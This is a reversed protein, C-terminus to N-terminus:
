GAVAADSNAVQVRDGDAVGADYQASTTRHPETSLYCRIVERFVGSLTLLSQQYRDLLEDRALRPFPLTILIVAICFAIVLTLLIQLPLVVQDQDLAIIVLILANIGLAFRRALPPHFYYAIGISTIFLVIEVVIIRNVQSLSSIQAGTVVMEVVVAALVGKFMIDMGALTGGVTPRITTVCFVLMLYPVNMLPVAFWQAAIIAGAIFSILGRLANDLNRTFTHRIPRTSLLAPLWSHLFAAALTTPQEHKHTSSLPSINDKANGNAAALAVSATRSAPHPRLSSDTTSQERSFATSLKPPLLIRSHSITYQHSYSDDTPQSLNHKTLHPSAASIVPQLSPQQPSSHNATALASPQPPSDHLLQSTASAPSPTHPPPM